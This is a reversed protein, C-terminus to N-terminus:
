LSPLNEHCPLPSNFKANEFGVMEPPSTAPMELHLQHFSVARCRGCYTM